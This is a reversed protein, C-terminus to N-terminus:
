HLPIFEGTRTNIMGNPGAPVYLTGDRTGVLNGGGAPAYFEGTVPNVAGAGNPRTMEEKVTSQEQTVTITTSSGSESSLVPPERGGPKESAARGGCRNGRSDLQGPYDCPHDNDIGGSGFDTSPASSDNTGSQTASVQKTVDVGRYMALAEIQKVASTSPARHLNSTQVAVVHRVTEGFPPYHDASTSTEQMSCASLALPVLTWYWKM